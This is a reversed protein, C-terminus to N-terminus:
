IRRERTIAIYTGGFPVFHSLFQLHAAEHFSFSYYNSLPLELHEHQMTLIKVCPATDM